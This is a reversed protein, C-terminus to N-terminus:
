CSVPANLNRLLHAALETQRADRLLLRAGGPLLLELTASADPAPSAHAAAPLAVEVLQLGAKSCSRAPQAASHQYDGRARRRKQIWSAFTQYNVGAMRAFPLGKLGSREF